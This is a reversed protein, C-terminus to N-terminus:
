VKIEETCTEYKTPIIIGNGNLEPNQLLDFVLLFKFVVSLSDPGAFLKSRRFCVMLEQIKGVNSFIWRVLFDTLWYASTM